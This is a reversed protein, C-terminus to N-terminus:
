LRKGITMKQCLVKWVFKPALILYRRWLRRPESVLRHLWELGSKQMWLPARAVQGSHFDFAAGVGILTVGLSKYVRHMWIEQKPTSMGIWVIDAGSAKIRAIMADSEQASFERFPPSEVGVILTQPNKECFTKALTEAVGPKGGLFYHRLRKTQSQMILNEMLDAGCVRGIKHGTLKGLWVLPMGDPTIMAAKQHLQLLRPSNVSLMVGHVDRVCIFRGISDDAWDIIQQSAHSLDTVTIDLGLVNFSPNQDISLGAKM